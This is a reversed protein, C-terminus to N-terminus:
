RVRDLAPQEARSCSRGAILSTRRGSRRNNVACRRIRRTLEPKESARERLGRLLGASVVARTARGAESATFLRKGREDRM